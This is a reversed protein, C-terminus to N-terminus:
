ETDAWKLRCFWENEVKKWTGELEACKEQNIVTESCIGTDSCLEEDTLPYKKAYYIDSILLGIIGVSFFIYKFKGNKKALLLIAGICYIIFFVSSVIFLIVDNELGAFVITSTEILAFLGLFIGLLVRALTKILKKM